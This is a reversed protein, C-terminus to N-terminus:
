GHEKKGGYLALIEADIAAAELKLAALRVILDLQRKILEDLQALEADRATKM